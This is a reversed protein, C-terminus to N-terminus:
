LGEGYYERWQEACGNVCWLIAAEEFDLGISHAYNKMARIQETNM